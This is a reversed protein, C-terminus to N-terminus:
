SVEVKKFYDKLYEMKKKESMPSDKRRGLMFYIGYHIEKEYIKKNFEIYNMAKNEFLVINDACVTDCFHM